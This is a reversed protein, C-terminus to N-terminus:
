PLEGVVEFTALIIDLAELDAQSVGQLILFTVFSQDEPMTALVILVAEEQGCGSYFDYSGTYLPDAYDYRGEFFCDESFDAVDLLENFIFGPPVSWADFLVGPMSYSSNFSSIDPSAMIRANILTGNEQVPSGDVDVWDAPVDMGIVGLEDYVTLYNTYTSTGENIDESIERAFSYVVELNRGNLQGVLYEDTTLRVVSVDLTSQPGHSRIIDCYDAMTGDRALVLGGLETIIDGAQVGVKDAPSGPKVSSVWIGSSGDDLLVAEGNVGISDVDNGARLQDIIELAEERKIAYSQGAFSSAYNIGVVEGDKTVLPGGSNGGLISADHEIVADVSAWQSDGDAREKSIVGRNITYEPDGLPFGTAYVDLGAKIPEEYWKLYSLGEGDIDIVALDSCESAGLIRANRPQSEGDVWVKLLVAGTVVHNNTVAIGSEDIIFGSGSNATNVLGLERDAFAGEIEIRVTAQRVDELTKVELKECGSVAVALAALLMFVLTSNKKLM